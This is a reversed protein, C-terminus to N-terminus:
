AAVEDTRRVRAVAKAATFALATSFVADVELNKDLIFSAVERGPYQSRGLYYLGFPISVGKPFGM